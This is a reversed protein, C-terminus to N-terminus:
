FFIPERSSSKASLEAYYGPWAYDIVCVKGHRYGVNNEHLDNINDYLWDFEETTCYDAWNRNSQGIGSIRPMISFTLGNMHLITTKALLHEMGASVALEYLRAESECNGARGDAWYDNETQYDFKIVYDSRIIAIRSVGNAWHLPHVHNENYTRIADTFDSFTVCNEFLRVLVKAFKTARVEYNTKMM